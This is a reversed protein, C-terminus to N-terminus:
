RHAPGPADRRPDHVIRQVKVYPDGEPPVLSTFENVRAAARRPRGAARARWLWFEESARETEPPSDLFATVWGITM